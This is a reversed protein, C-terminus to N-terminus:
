TITNIICSVSTVLMVLFMNLYLLMQLTQLYESERALIVTCLPRFCVSSETMPLPGQGVLPQEDTRMELLLSVQVGFFGRKEVCSM